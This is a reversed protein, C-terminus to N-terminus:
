KYHKIRLDTRCIPCTGKKKLWEFICRHHYLFTHPACICRIVHPKDSVSFEDYCIICDKNEDTDQLPLPSILRKKLEEEFESTGCYRIEELAIINSRFYMLVYIGSYMFIAASAIVFWQSYDPFFMCVVVSVMTISTTVRIPFPLVESISSFITRPIPPSLVM